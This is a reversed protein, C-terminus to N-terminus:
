TMKDSTSQTHLMILGFLEGGTLVGNVYMDGYRAKFDEPSRSFADAADKKIAVDTMLLVPNKVIAKVMVCLSYDNMSHSQAFDVQAFGGAVFGYNLSMAASVGLSEELDRQTEVIHTSYTVEAGAAGPVSAPPTATVASGRVQESSAGVGVGFTFKTDSTTTRPM